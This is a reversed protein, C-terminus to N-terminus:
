STVQRLLGSKRQGLLTRKICTKSYIRREHDITKTLIEDIKYSYSFMPFSFLYSFQILLDGNPCLFLPM